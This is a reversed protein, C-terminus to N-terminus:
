ETKSKTSLVSAPLPAPTIPTSSPVGSLSPTAVAAASISDVYVHKHGDFFAKFADGKVLAETAIKGLKIEAAELEVVPPGAHPLSIRVVASGDDRGILLSGATTPLPNAKSSGVGFLVIADTLSFMRDSEADHVTGTEIWADLSRDAIGLLIEAGPLYEGVISVGAFRPWAVPVREIPPIQYPRGERDRGRRAIQVTAFGGAYSVISAPVVTRVRSLVDAALAELVEIESVRDGSM